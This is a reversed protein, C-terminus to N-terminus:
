NMVIFDAVAKQYGVSNKRYCMGHGAGEVTFTLYESKCANKLESMM